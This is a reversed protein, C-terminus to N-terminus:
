DHVLDVRCEEVRVVVNLMDDDVSDQEGVRDELRTRSDQQGPALGPSRDSNPRGKIRPQPGEEQHVPGPLDEEGTNRGARPGISPDLLQQVRPRQVRPESRGWRPTEM